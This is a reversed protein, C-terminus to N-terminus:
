YEGMAHLVRCSFHVTHGSLCWVCVTKRARVVFGADAGRISIFKSPRSQKTGNYQQGVNEKSPRGRRGGRIGGRGRWVFVRGRGGDVRVMVGKVKMDEWGGQWQTWRGSPMAQERDAHRRIGAQEGSARRDVLLANDDNRRSFPMVAGRIRRKSRWTAGSPASAVAAASSSDPSNAAVAAEPLRAAGASVPPRRPRRCSDEADADAEPPAPATTRPPVLAPNLPRCCRPVLLRRAATVSAARRTSSASASLHAKEM